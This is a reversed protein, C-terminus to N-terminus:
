MRMCIFVIAMFISRAIKLSPFGLRALNKKERQQRAAKIHFHHPYFSKSFFFDDIIEAFGRV